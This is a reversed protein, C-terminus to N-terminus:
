SEDPVLLEHHVLYGGTDSVVPEVAQLRLADLFQVSIEERASERRRRYQLHM